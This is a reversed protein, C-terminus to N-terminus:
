ENQNEANEDRTVSILMKFKKRQRYEKMRQAPTKADPKRPRGVPNKGFIDGTFVDDKQKMSLM